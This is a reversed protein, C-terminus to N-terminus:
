PLRGGNEIWQLATAPEIYPPLYEFQVARLHDLEGRFRAHMELAALLQDRTLTLGRDTAIASLIAETPETHVPRTKV